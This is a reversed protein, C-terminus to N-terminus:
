SELPRGRAVGKRHRRYLASQCETPSAWWLVVERDSRLLSMLPASRREPLLVPVVASSDWFM